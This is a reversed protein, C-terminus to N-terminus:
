ARVSFEVILPHDPGRKLAKLPAQTAFDRPRWERCAAVRLGTAAFANLYDAFAHPFTPMRVEQGGEHFHAALGGMSLLPHIEIVAIGGGQRLIRGAEGLPAAIDRVHELSLSFLALDASRDPLPLRLTMDHQLLRLTADRERAKALMGESLDCGTLTAAGHRKLVALNRGTGCGFEVVDKGAVGKGTVGQALAAVVQSAAFVMPNDYSDYVGAWRDYAGAVPLFVTKESM